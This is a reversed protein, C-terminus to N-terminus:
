RRSQCVCPFRKHPEARQDYRKERADDETIYAEAHLCTGNRLKGVQTQQGNAAGHRRIGQKGTQHGGHQRVGGAAIDVRCQTKGNRECQDTLPDVGAGVGEVGAEQRLNVFASGGTVFFPM